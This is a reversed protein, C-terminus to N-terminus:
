SHCFLSHHNRKNNEYDFHNSKNIALSIAPKGSIFEHIQHTLYSAKDSIFEHIQRTLYSAKDSLFQRIFVLSLSAASSRRVCGM